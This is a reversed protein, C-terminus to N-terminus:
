RATPNELYAACGTPADGQPARQVTARAHRSSANPTPSRRPAGPRSVSRDADDRRGGSYSGRRAICAPGGWGRVTRMVAAPDPPAADGAWAVYQDPRVLILRAGYAERGGDYTDSIVTLGPADFPEADLAVLTFGPGLAEFVNRGDSLPLPPLHHGPRASFTHEGHASVVGGPPGCVVPSGEYHPEFDRLRRGFGAAVDAFRREFEARDTAPDYTALFDRDDRIWGGIIDEGVDRFVPQRELSYSD